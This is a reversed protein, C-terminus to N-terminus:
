NQDNMGYVIVELVSIRKFVNSEKVTANIEKKKLVQVQTSASCFAWLSQYFSFMCYYYYYASLHVPM